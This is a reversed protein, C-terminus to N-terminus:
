KSMEKKNNESIKLILSKLQIAEPDLPKIKLFENVHFLALSDQLRSTYILSLNFHSRSISPDLKLAKKYFVIANDTHHLCDLCFGLRFCYAGNLSDRELLLSYYELAKEYEKNKYAADAQKETKSIFNSSESNTNNSKENKAGSHYKNSCSLSSSLLIIISNIFFITIILHRAISNKNPIKYIM